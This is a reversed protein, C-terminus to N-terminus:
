QVLIPLSKGLQDFHKQFPSPYYSSPGASAPGGASTPANFNTHIVASQTSVTSASSQYHHPPQSRSMQRQMGMPPQQQSPPFIGPNPLQALSSRPYGHYQQAQGQALSASTPPTIGGQHVIPPSRTPVNTPSSSHSSPTPHGGPSAQPFNPDASPQGPALKPLFSGSRRAHQQHVAARQLPTQAPPRPQPLTAGPPLFGPGLIPSGQKM